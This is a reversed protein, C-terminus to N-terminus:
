FHYQLKLKIRVPVSLGNPPPLPLAERVAQLSNYFFIRDGESVELQSANGEKDIELQLTVSGQRRRQLALRPYRKHQEILSRLTHLYAERLASSSDGIVEALEPSAIENVDPMNAQLMKQNVPDHVAIPRELKSQSTRSSQSSANKKVVTKNAQQQTPKTKSIKGELPQVEVPVVSHLQKEQKVPKETVDNEEPVNKEAFSPLAVAKERVPQIETQVSASSRFTIELSIKQAAGSPVPEADHWTLSLLGAHFSVALLMAIFGSKCSNVTM